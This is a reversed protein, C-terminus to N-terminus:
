KGLKLIESIEHGSVSCGNLKLGWLVGDLIENKLKPVNYSDFLGREYAVAMIDVSRIVDVGKVEGRFLELNKKNIKIETHLKRKLLDALVEPAEILVRMNREDVAFADAGMEKVLALSEMEGYHVIKIYTNKGMFINNALNLLYETKKRLDGDYVKLNGNNIFSVIQLAELKWKKSKLPRDVIEGKVSRSVYFEVNFKKKLGGLVGLLNNMSVSIITGSDFVIKSM